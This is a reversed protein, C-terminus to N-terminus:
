RGRLRDVIEGEEGPGRKGANELEGSMVRKSLRHDDMRLLAGAWLLWRKCYLDGFVQSILVCFMMLLVQRPTQADTRKRRIIYGTM